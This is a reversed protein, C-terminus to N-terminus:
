EAELGLAAMREAISDYLKGKAHASARDTVRMAHWKAWDCLLSELEVVRGEHRELLKRVKGAPDSEARANWDAIVSELVEAECDDEDRIQAYCDVCYVYATWDDCVDNHVTYYEALGGCFPCDKVELHKGM